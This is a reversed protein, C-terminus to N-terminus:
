KRHGEHGRWNIIKRCTIVGHNKKKLLPEKLHDPIRCYDIKTSWKKLRFIERASKLRHFFSLIQNLINTILILMLRMYVTTCFDDSTSWEFFNFFHYSFLNFYFITADFIHTYNTWSFIPLQPGSVLKHIKCIKKPKFKRPCTRRKLQFRGTRQKHFFQPGL